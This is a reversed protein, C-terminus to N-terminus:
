VCLQLGRQVADDQVRQKEEKEKKEEENERQEVAERQAADVRAEMYGDAIAAAAWAEDSIGTPGAHGGGVTKNKQKRKKNKLQDGHSQKRHYWLGSKGAWGTLHPCDVCTFPKEAKTAGTSGAGFVIGGAGAARAGIGGMGGIGVAAAEGAEAGAEVKLSVQGAALQFDRHQLAALRAYEVM